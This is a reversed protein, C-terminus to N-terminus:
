RIFSLDTNIIAALIEKYNDRPEREEREWRALTTPDINLKGALEKQIMGTLRRYYIIREGLTKPEEFPIYGLFEIIKPIQRLKPSSYNREWNFITTKNVGILPAIEYQHLKLDLRKKRIHDGITKLEKPYTKPLPREGKISVHCFPLAPIGL